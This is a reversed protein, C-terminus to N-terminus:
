AEAKQKDKKKAKKDRKKEKKERKKKKKKVKKRQSVAAAEELDELTLWPTPSVDLVQELRSIIARAVSYVRYNQDTAPIAAWPAHPTNTQAIMEEAAALYEDYRRHQGWEKATVRWAHAPDKTLKIFRRLQEEPSIHLWLKVFITGDTALLREFDNIDDYVSRGNFSLPKEEEIRGALVRRYWSGDFIAMEGYRPIKLWFRWLWPMKTELTRPPTSAYTKFGRPDFRRTIEQITEGKGATEWGEFIIITPIKTDFALKELQYLRQRLYRRIHKFATDSLSLSLDMKDLM